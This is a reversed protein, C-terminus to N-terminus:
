QGLSVYEKKYGYFFIDVVEGIATFVLFIATDTLVTFVFPAFGGTIIAGTIMSPTICAIISISLISAITTFLKSSPVDSLVYIDKKPIGIEKFIEIESICDEKKKDIKIISDKKYSKIYDNFKQNKEFFEKYQTLKFDILPTISSMTTGTTIKRFFPSPKQMRSFSGFINKGINLFKSSM